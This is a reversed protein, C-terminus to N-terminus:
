GIEDVEHTVNSGVGQKKDTVSDGCVGGAKGHAM